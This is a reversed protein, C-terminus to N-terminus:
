CRPASPDSSRASLLRAAGDESSSVDHKKERSETSDPACIAFVKPLFKEDSTCFQVIDQSPSHM